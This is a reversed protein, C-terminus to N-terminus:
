VESGNVEWEEIIIEYNKNCQSQRMGQLQAVQLETAGRKVAAKCCECVSDGVFVLDMSNKSNWQDTEFLLYAKKM